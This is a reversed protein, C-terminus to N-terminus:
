GASSFWIRSAFVQVADFSKNNDITLDLLDSPIEYALEQTETIRICFSSREYIFDLQYMFNPSFLYNQSTLKSLWMPFTRLKYKSVWRVKQGHDSDGQPEVPAGSEDIDVREYVEAIFHNIVEMLLRTDKSLILRQVPNASVDSDLDQVLKRIKPKIMKFDFHFLLNCEESGDRDSATKLEMVKFHFWEHETLGESVAAQSQGSNTTFLDQPLPEISETFNAKSDSPGGLGNAMGAGPGRERAKNSILLQM